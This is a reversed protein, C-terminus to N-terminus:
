AAGEDSARYRIYAGETWESAELIRWRHGRWVIHDPPGGTAGEGNAPILAGGDTVPDGDIQVTVSDAVFIKINGATSTGATQDVRRPGDDPQVSCRLTGTSAAGVTGTGDQPDITTAGARQVVVTEAFSGIISAMEAASFLTM